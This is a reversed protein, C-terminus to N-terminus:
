WLVRRWGRSPARARYMKWYVWIGTVTLFVLALGWFIGLVVGGDGFVEGTHLRLIFSEREGSERKIIAGTDANVTFKLPETGATWVILKRPTNKFQVEVADIPVDTGLAAHIVSQACSLQQDLGTVSTTLTQSSTVTALREREAEDSGLLQQFQLIVGTLAVLLLFLCAPLSVWRHLKRM